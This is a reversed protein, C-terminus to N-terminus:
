WCWKLTETHALTNGQKKETSRLPVLRGV